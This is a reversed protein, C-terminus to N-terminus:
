TEVGPTVPNTPLPEVGTIQGLLGVLGWISVMVFLVIVGWIMQHGARSRAEPDGANLIFVAMSWFFFLLALTLVLPLLQNAIQQASLILGDFYALDVGSGPVAPEAGGGGGPPAAALLGPVALVTTALVATTFLSRLM